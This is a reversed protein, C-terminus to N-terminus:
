YRKARERREWEADTVHIRRPKKHESEPKPPRPMGRFTPRAAERGMVTRNYQVLFVAM